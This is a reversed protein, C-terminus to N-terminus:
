VTIKEWPIHLPILDVPRIAPNASTKWHAWLRRLAALSCDPANQGKGRCRQMRRISEKYFRFPINRIKQPSTNGLEWYKDEWRAFPCSEFHVVMLPSGFPEQTMQISPIDQNSSAKWMHPGAPIADPNSVRVAAKGNAYSVFTAPNVNIQRTESFCSKIEASPYVAEVNPIFAQDFGSPMSALISGVSRQVPAYLLEDDDIHILWSIGMDAAVVKASAMTRLQRAQLSEYDDAPRQDRDPAPASGQWVTVHSQLAAPLSQWMRSFTLTDEVLMFVHEVGMYNVHYSLWRHLNPPHRSLLVIAV